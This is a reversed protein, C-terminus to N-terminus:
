NLRQRAARRLDRFEFLEPLEVRGGDRWAGRNEEMDRLVKAGNELDRVNLLFNVKYDGGEGAVQCHFLVGSRAGVSYTKWETEIIGECADGSINMRDWGQMQLRCAAMTLASRIDEPIMGPGKEGVMLCTWSDQM